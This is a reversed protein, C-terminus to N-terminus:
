PKVGIVRNRLVTAGEGGIWLIQWTKRYKPELIASVGFNLLAGAPFYIYSEVSDAISNLEEWQPNSKIEETQVWDVMILGTIALQRYTDQKTWGKLPTSVCGTLLIVTCIVPIFRSVQM